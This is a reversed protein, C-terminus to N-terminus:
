FAYLKALSPVGFCVALDHYIKGIEVGVSHYSVNNAALTSGDGMFSQSDRGEGLPLRCLDM